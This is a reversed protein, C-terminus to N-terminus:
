HSEVKYVSFGRARYNALAYPHDLDRTHLWVRPPELEWAREIAFSLLLGGLGRGIFQPALGFRALEIENESSRITEFYGGISGDYFALFTRLSASETYEAWQADSWQLKSKWSCQSGVLVYLFRNVQWQRVTAELVRFHPDGSRAPPRHENRDLMQLYTITM